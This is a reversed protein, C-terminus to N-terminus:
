GETAGVLLDETHWKAGNFVGYWGDGADDITLVETLATSGDLRLGNSSPVITFDNTALDGLLIVGKREGPLSGQALDIDADAGLTVGGCVYSIGGVQYTLGASGARPVSLFEVGGCEEGTLLDAQCTPNETYVYAVIPLTTAATTSVASTSLVLTTATKSAVTYKGAQAAGTNTDGGCIVVTDGVSVNATTTIGTITLGDTSLLWADTSDMDSYLIATVTQRPIASGRGKYKGTYFRGRDSGTAVGAVFSLLGTDIVTDIALAIPAGRSGPCCIRLRQGAAKASYSREVVGAFAHNNSSSPREVRNCRRGDFTTATGYDTNYCVAEGQKLADTGEYWVEEIILNGMQQPGNVSKDM